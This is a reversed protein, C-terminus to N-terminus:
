YCAGVSVTVIEAALTVTEPNGVICSCAKSLREHEHEKLCRPKEPAQIAPTIMAERPELRSSPIYTPCSYDTDTGYYVTTTSTVRNYSPDHLCPDTVLHIRM